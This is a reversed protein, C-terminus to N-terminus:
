VVKCKKSKTRARVGAALFRGAFSAVILLMNWFLIGLLCKLRSVLPRDGTDVGTHTNAVRVVEYICSTNMFSMGLTFLALTRTEDVMKMSCLESFTKLKTYFFTLMCLYGELTFPEYVYLRAFNTCFSPSLHFMCIIACHHGAVKKFAETVTTLTFRRVFLCDNLFVTDIVLQFALWMLPGSIATSPLLAGVGDGGSAVEGGNAQRLWLIINMLMGLRFHVYYRLLWAVCQLAKRLILRPMELLVFQLFFTNLFPLQNGVARDKHFVSVNGISDCAITDDIAKAQDVVTDIPKDEHMKMTVEDLEELADVIVDCLLLLGFARASKYLEQLQLSLDRGQLSAAHLAMGALEIFERKDILRLPLVEADSPAPDSAFLWEEVESAVAVSPLLVVPFGAGSPMNRCPGHAYVAEIRAIGRSTDPLSVRITVNDLILTGRRSHKSRSIEEVHLLTGGHFRAEFKVGPPVGPIRIDMARVDGSSCTVQVTSKMFDCFKPDLQIVTQISGDRHVSVARGELSLYIPTDGAARSNLADCQDFLSGQVLRKALTEICADRDCPVISGGAVVKHLIISGPTLWMDSWIGDLPHTHEAVTIGGPVQGFNHPHLHEAGAIGGSMQAFDHPSTRPYMHGREEIRGEFDQDELLRVMEKVIDPDLETGVKLAFDQVVWNGTVQQGQPRIINSLQKVMGRGDIPAYGAHANTVVETDLHTQLPTPVEVPVVRPAQRDSIYRSWRCAQDPQRADHELALGTSTGEHNTGALLGADRGWGGTEGVSRCVPADVDVRQRGQSHKGPAATAFLSKDSLFTANASESAVTGSTSQGAKARARREKLKQLAARCRTQREKFADLPELQRHEYCFRVLRGDPMEIVPRRMCPSCLKTAKAISTLLCGPQLCAKCKLSGPAM